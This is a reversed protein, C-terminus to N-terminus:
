EIFNADVKVYMRSVWMGNWAKRKCKGVCKNQGRSSRRNVDVMPLLDDRGLPPRRAADGRAGAREAEVAARRDVGAGGGAALLVGDM